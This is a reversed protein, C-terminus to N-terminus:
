STEMKVLRLADGVPKAMTNYKIM